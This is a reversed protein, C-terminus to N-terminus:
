CCLLPFVSSLLANGWLSLSIQWSKYGGKSERSQSWEQRGMGGEKKEKGVMRLGKSISFHTMQTSTLVRLVSLAAKNKPRAKSIKKETKKEGRQHSVFLLFFPPPYKIYRTPASRVFHPCQAKYYSPCKKDGGRGAGCGHSWCCCSVSLPVALMMVRCSEPGRSVLCVGILLSCAAFVGRAAWFGVSLPDWICVPEVSLRRSAAMAVVCLRTIEPQRLIGFVAAGVYGSMEVPWIASPVCFCYDPKSMWVWVSWYCVAFTM